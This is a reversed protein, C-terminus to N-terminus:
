SLRRVSSVVNRVFPCPRDDARELESFLFAELFAGAGELLNEETQEILAETRERLTDAALDLGDVRKTAQGPQCLLHEGDARETLKPEASHDGWSL